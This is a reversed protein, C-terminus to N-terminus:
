GHPHKRCAQALFHALEHPEDIGYEPCILNIHEVLGPMLKSYRGAIGRLHEVTLIM